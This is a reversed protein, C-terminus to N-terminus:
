QKILLIQRSVMRVLFGADTHRRIHDAHFFADDRKKILASSSRYIDKCIMEAFRRQLASGEAVLPAAKETPVLRRIRRDDTDFRRTVFGGKILTEVAVSAIGSKIGRVACIDRATNSDPNNSCFMLVDFCTQNIGYKRCISAALDSYINALERGIAMIKLAYM